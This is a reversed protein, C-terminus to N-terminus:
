RETRREAFHGRTKVVGDPDLRLGIGGRRKAPHPRGCPPRIRASIEIRLDLWKSDPHGGQLRHTEHPRPREISVMRHLRQLQSRPKEPIGTLDIRHSM